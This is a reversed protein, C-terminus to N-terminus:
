PEQDSENRSRWSPFEPLLISSFCPTGQLDLVLVYKIILKTPFLRLNKNTQKATKQRLPKIKNTQKPPFAANFDQGNHTSRFVVNEQFPAMGPSTHQCWESRKELKHPGQGGDKHLRLIYENRASLVLSRPEWLPEYMLCKQGGKNDPHPFLGLTNSFTDRKLKKLTPNLKEFSYLRRTREKYKIDTKPVESAWPVATCM